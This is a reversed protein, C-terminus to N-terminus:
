SGEKLEKQTENDGAESEGGEGDGAPAVPARQTGSDMWGQFVRGRHVLYILVWRTLMLGAFAVLGGVASAQLALIFLGAIVLLRFLGALGVLLLGRTSSLRSATWVHSVMTLWGVFIGAILWLIYGV